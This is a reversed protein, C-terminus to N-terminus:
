PTARPHSQRVEITNRVDIVGPVRWAAADADRKEGEGSAVGRLTVVDHHAAAYIQASNVNPDRALEAMVMRRLEGDDM